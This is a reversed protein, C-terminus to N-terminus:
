PGVYTWELMNSTASTPARRADQKVAM